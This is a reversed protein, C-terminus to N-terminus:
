FQQDESELENDLKMLHPEMLKIKKRVGVVFKKDSHMKGDGPKWGSCGFFPQGTQGHCRGVLRADCATCRLEQEDTLGLSQVTYPHYALVVPVISAAGAAKLVRICENLTAGTTQVDDVLVIRKGKVDPHAKFVGRVQKKRSQFDSGTLKPYDNPCELLELRISNPDLNNSTFRKANPMAKLYLGLRDTRGPRAPVRTIADFKGDTAVWVGLSLLEAFCAAQAEPKDKSKLIRNSLAHLSHRPDAHGFYRGAVHVGCDPHEINPVVPYDHYLINDEDFLFTGKPSALFEGGFGLCEGNISVRLDEVDAILFDPFAQFQKLRERPSESDRYMLITGLLLEHASRLSQSDRCIFVTTSPVTDMKAIARRLVNQYMSKQFQKEAVVVDQSDVGFESFDGGVRSAYALKYHPELEQVLETFLNPDDRFDDINIIFGEIKQLTFFM